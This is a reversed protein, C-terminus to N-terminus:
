TRLTAKIRVPKLLLEFAKEINTVLIDAKLIAQVSCGEPDLVAIGLSAEKLMQTDNSGNGIAVCNEKGLERVYNMKQSEQDGKNIIKFKVPIAKIQNEVTEYTDATIIHIELKKGIKLLDKAIRKPLLGDQAMTGNFDLLLYKLQLKKRGPIIIDLM